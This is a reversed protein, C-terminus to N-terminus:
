WAQLLPPFTSRFPPMGPDQATSRTRQHIKLELFFPTPAPSTSIVGSPVMISCAKVNPNLAHLCCRLQTRPVVQLILVQLLISPEFASHISHSM